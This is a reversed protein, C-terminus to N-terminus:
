KENLCNCIFNSHINCKYTVGESEKEEEEEYRCKPYDPCGIDGNVYINMRCQVCKINQLEDWRSKTREKLKNRIDNVIYNLADIEGQDVVKVHALYEQQSNFADILENIKTALEFIPKEITGMRNYDLNFKEIKM